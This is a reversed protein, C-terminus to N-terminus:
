GSRPQSLAQKFPRFFEALSMRFGKHLVRYLNGIQVDHDGSEINGISNRYLGAVHALAEQSLGKKKRLRAVRQAVERAVVGRLPDREALPRRRM